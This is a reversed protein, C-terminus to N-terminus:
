QPNWGGKWVALPVIDAPHGNDRFWSDVAYVDGTQNEVVTAAFHPVGDSWFAFRQERDGYRHWRLIGQRTLMILLTNTNMTEDICDLQGQRFIGKLTGGLDQDTSLIRGIVQEFRGIVLALQRREAVAHDVHVLLPQSVHEWETPTLSVLAVEECTNAYCYAFKAPTPHSIGTRPM